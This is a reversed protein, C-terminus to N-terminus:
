APTEPVAAAQRARFEALGAAIADDSLALIAAALLAANVAGARGVALTGVPIGSPMQVTSLLSDMGDLEKTPIPIGIVPLTSQAALAGALHAAGGAAGILVKVGKARANKAFARVLEPSRHASKVAVEFPVGFDRLVKWGSELVPLDSESGM